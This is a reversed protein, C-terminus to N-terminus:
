SRVGLISQSIYMNLNCSYTLISTGFTTFRHNPGIFWNFANSSHNLAYIYTSNHIHNYLSELMFRDLDMYIHGLCSTWLPWIRSIATKALHGFDMNGILMTLKPVHPEKLAYGLFQSPFNCTQIIPIHWFQHGLLSLDITQVQLDTLPM